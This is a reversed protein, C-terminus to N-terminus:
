SNFAGKSRGKSRLAAPEPVSAVPVEGTVNYTVNSTQSAATFKFDAEITESFPTGAAAPSTFNYSTATLLLPGNNATLLASLPTTEAFAANSTSVFGQSTITSGGLTKNFTVSNDLAYPNTLGTQSYLVKVTHTSGAVYTVTGRPGTAPATVINGMVNFSPDLVNPVGTDWQVDTSYPRAATASGSYIIQGPTAADTLSVGPTASGDFYINLYLTANASSAALASGTVALATLFAKKTNM